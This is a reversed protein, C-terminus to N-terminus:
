EVKARNLYFQSMRVKDLAANLYPRKTTDPETNLMTQLIPELFRAYKALTAEDQTLLAYQVAEETVPTVLELRGVFVRTIQAPAPNITLPLVANVFREPVIYLLRSGEEFWSDRWTEVMAHAENQYLGQDVLIGELDRCLNDLDGTLEPADLAATDQLPGAIRYGLKEGRREFLIANAIEGQSRNEIRVKTGADSPPAALTARIPVPFVSVGRYFLFKEYQEGASTNVRLPTATTQRATYYHSRHNEQPFDPALAPTLTVADWAISADGHPPSLSMDSISEAPEVRSAHPYWETIIGQAFRVSVSVAQERPAYFYLVPTEMRVTGRLSFKFRADRFHEVFGPLDASGTLPWWEMAEGDTGAISTFTGWEHLTLASYVPRANPRRSHLATAGSLAVIASLVFCRKLLSM